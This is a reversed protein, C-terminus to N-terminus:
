SEGNIVSNLIEAVDKEPIPFETALKQAAASIFRSKINRVMRGYGKFYPKLIEELEDPTLEKSDGFNRQSHKLVSYEEDSALYEALKRSYNKIKAM